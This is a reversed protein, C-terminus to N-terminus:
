PAPTQACQNNACFGKSAGCRGFGGWVGLKGFVRRQGSIGWSTGSFDHSAGHLVGSFEGFKGSIERIGGFGRFKRSILPPSSNVCDALACWYLTMKGSHKGGTYYWDSSGHLQEGSGLAGM